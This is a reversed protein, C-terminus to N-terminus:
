TLRPYRYGARVLGRRWRRTPCVETNARQRRKTRHYGREGARSARMGSVAPASRRKRDAIQAMVELQM